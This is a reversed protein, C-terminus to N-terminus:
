VGSLCLPLLLYLRKRREFEEKQGYVLAFTYHRHIYNAMLVFLVIIGRHDKFVALALFVPIWGFSFFVLDSAPNRIWFRPTLIKIKIDCLILL